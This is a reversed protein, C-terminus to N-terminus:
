GRFNAFPLKGSEERFSTLLAREAHRPDGAAAKWAIRADWIRELQWLARGGAHGVPEGSGFRVLESIRKRLTRKSTPGAKGVYLIDTGPVWKRQLVEIPCSPDRGQFWGAESKPRFVPASRDSRVVVYVGPEAPIELLRSRVLHLPVFGEFGRLRANARLRPASSQRAKKPRRGSRSTTYAAGPERVLLGLPIDLKEYLARIMPITLSRKRSLVESARNKGGLLPAIDKQRLGQQEMRFLIADIPDPKAFAFRVKEYDEVLKALLELRLGERSEPDPDRVALREVEARFCRYQDNTKIIRPEM